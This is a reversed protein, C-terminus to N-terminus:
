MKSAGTKREALNREAPVAFAVHQSLAVVEGGEDCIVVEIDMRGNKIVKTDVRVFLWEAGEEPLAKKIDLNLLLTPYWFKAPQIKEGKADGTKDAFDNSGKKTHVDYPNESHSFAEVPMPWTDAVFGLSENTWREGSALRIWEDASSRVRQGKRPFYFQTKQTARRFKSFPM